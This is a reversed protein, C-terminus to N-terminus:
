ICSPPRTFSPWTCFILTILVSPFSCPCTTYLLFVCVLLPGKFFLNVFSLIFESVHFISLLVLLLFWIYPFIDQSICWGFCLSWCVPVFQAADRNLKGKSTANGYFFMECKKMWGCKCWRIVCFFLFPWMWSAPTQCVKPCSTLSCGKKREKITAASRVWM